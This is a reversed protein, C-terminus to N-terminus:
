HATPGWATRMADHLMSPVVHGYLDMTTQISAHGLCEAVVKPHIGRALMRTAASHRLDHFRMHPLDARTLIRGLAGNVTAARMFDGFPGAFVLGLDVWETGVALRHEHQRLRHERLAMVAQPPLAVRRSRKSKPSTIELEARRVGTLSGVVELEAGVLDVHQWRLALLEGQRMGTCLAVVFLAELPEGSAAELFREPEDHHLVQFEVRDRGPGDVAGAVNRTVIGEREAVRLARHLLRHLHNVTTRSLGSALKRSYLGALDSPTLRSLLRRALPDTLVHKDVYKTYFRVTAPKVDTNPLNGLWRTLYTGLTLKQDPVGLGDEVSRRAAHLKQEAERYSRAYLSRAKGSTDVVRAVWRGDRRQYVSGEGAGRRNRQGQPLDTWRVRREMTGSIPQAM